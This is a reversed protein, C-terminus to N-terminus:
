KYEYGEVKYYKIPTFGILMKEYLDVPTLLNLLNNPSTGLLKQKQSYFWNIM